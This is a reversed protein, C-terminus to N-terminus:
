DSTDYGGFSKHCHECREEHWGSQNNPPCYDVINHNGDPSKPCVSLVVKKPRCNYCDFRLSDKEKSFNQGCKNCQILVMNDPPTPAPPNVAELYHLETEKDFGDRLPVGPHCAYQGAYRWNKPLPRTPLDWAVTVGTGYDEDIVGETGAPVGSFERLTKIRQGVIAQKTEM